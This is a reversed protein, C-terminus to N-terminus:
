LNSNGVKFLRLALFVTDFDFDVISPPDLVKFVVGLAELEERKDSYSYGSKINALLKGTTCHHPYSSFSFAITLCRFPVPLTCAPHSLYFLTSYHLIPYSVLTYQM